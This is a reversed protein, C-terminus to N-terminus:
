GGGERLSNLSRYCRKKSHQLHIKGNSLRTVKGFPYKGLTLINGIGSVHSPFDRIILVICKCQM